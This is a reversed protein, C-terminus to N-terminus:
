LMLTMTIGAVLPILLNDDIVRDIHRITLAEFLMAVVTGIFAKEFSVFNFAGITGAMIALATGELHKLPNTPSKIQGFYIGVIATISDGIAMITIAALAIPEPFLILSMFSGLVLFFSGKGPFSKIEKPREFIQLAESIIPVDASRSIISLIGGAILVGGLIEVTLVNLKILLVILLGITLHAVQRRVERKSTLHYIFREIVEYHNEMIILTWAFLYGILGGFLIDSVYHVGLYTRSVAISLLLIVGGWEAWKKQFLRQVFPMISFVIAAHISPFTYGTAYTLQTALHDPRPIQFLKKLLYGAELSLLSAIVIMLFEKYRRRVLLWTSLGSLILFLGTDTILYMYRNVMEVRNSDIFMIIQADFFLSGLFLLFLLSAFIKARTSM